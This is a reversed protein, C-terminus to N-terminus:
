MVTSDITASSSEIWYVGSGLSLSLRMGLILSLKRILSWSRFRTDSRGM